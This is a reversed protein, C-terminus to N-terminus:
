RGRLAAALAAFARGRHSIANKEDDTMQSFTRDQPGDPIFLPDYGWGRGDREATAIRGACVGRVALETGDPWVVMAVTIFEASRDVVGDLVALMKNRNEAYTATPGAFYATEVGPGGDLAAVFLGTDDAVAPLGTALCIAQAKLRANGELTGADEVVDPVHDPRPLLEVLDGLVAAIEDVKHANATACVLQMREGPAAGVVMDDDSLPIL